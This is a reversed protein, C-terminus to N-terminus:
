FYIFTNFLLTHISYLFTYTSYVCHMYIGCTWTDLLPITMCQIPSTTLGGLGLSIRQKLHSNQTWNSCYKQPVYGHHLIFCHLETLCTNRHHKKYNAIVFNWNKTKETGWTKCFALFKRVTQSDKLKELIVRSNTTLSHTLSNPVYTTQKNTPQSTPCDKLLHIVESICLGFISSM